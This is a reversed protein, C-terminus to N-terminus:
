KGILVKELAAKEADKLTAGLMEIEAKTQPDKLKALWIAAHVFDACEDPLGGPEPIFAVMGGPEAELGDALKRPEIQKRMVSTLLEVAKPGGLEGLAIITKRRNINRPHILGERATAELVLAMEKKPWDKYKREFYLWRALGKTAQENPDLKIAALEAVTLKPLLSDKVLEDWQDSTSWAGDDCGLMRLFVEARQKEPVNKLIGVAASEASDAKDLAKLAEAPLIVKMAWQRREAAKARERNEALEDAPGSVGSKALWASIAEGSHRELKGDGPWGDNWRLGVGHHMSLSVALKEGAYFEITPEGCCMCHGGSREDNVAFMAIIKTIEAADKVELHTKEAKLDRHCAGGSRVRIRTIGKLAAEMAAQWGTSVACQPNLARFAAADKEEIKSGIAHLRVLTPINKAPLKAVASSDADVHSIAPLDALGSLDSVASRDLNLIRLEPLGKLFAVNRTGKLDGPSLTRLARLSSLAGLSAAHGRIQLHRLKAANAINSLEFVSHYSDVELYELDRLAKLSSLDGSDESSGSTIDLFRVSTPLNKISNARVEFVCQPADLKAVLPGIEKADSEIEVCRIGRLEADSLGALPNVLKLKKGDREEAIKCWFLSKTGDSGLLWRRYYDEKTTVFKMKGPEGLVFRMGAVHVLDGPRMDGPIGNMSIGHPVVASDNLFFEYKEARAISGLMMVLFVLLKM